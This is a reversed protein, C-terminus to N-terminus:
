EQQVLQQQQQQEPPVQQQQPVAQQETLIQQEPLVRKVFQLLQQTYEEPYQRFHSVHESDGWKHRFTESGARGLQEMFAEVAAPQILADADSYLFLKPCPPAHQLWSQEMARLQKKYTPIELVRGIVATTPKVLWGASEEIGEAPRALAAAVLARSFVDATVNAPSSDLIIGRIRSRVDAAAPNTPAWEALLKCVCGMYIFGGGSFLHVLIPANPRQQAVQILKRTFKRARRM